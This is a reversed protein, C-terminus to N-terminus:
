VTGCPSRFPRMGNRESGECEACLVAYGEEDAGSRNHEQGKPERTYKLFSIYKFYTDGVGLGREACFM